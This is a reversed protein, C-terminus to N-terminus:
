FLCHSMFHRLHSETLAQGIFKSYFAHHVHLQINVNDNDGDHHNSKFAGLHSSVGANDIFMNNKLRINLRRKLFNPRM